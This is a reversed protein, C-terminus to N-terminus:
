GKGFYIPTYRLADPVAALAAQDGPLLRAKPNKVLLRAINYAERLDAFAPTQWREPLAFLTAIASVQQGAPSNWLVDAGQLMARAEAQKASADGGTDRDMRSFMQGTLKSLMQDAQKPDVGRSQAMQQIDPPLPLAAMGSKTAAPATKPYNGAQYARLQDVTTDTRLFVALADADTTWTGSQITQWGGGNAALWGSLLPWREGIGAIADLDVAGIVRTIGKHIPTAFARVFTKYAPPTGIGGPFPDYAAYDHAILAAQLAALVDALPSDGTGILLTQWDNM